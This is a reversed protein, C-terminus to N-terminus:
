GSVKLGLCTWGLNILSFMTHYDLLLQFTSVYFVCLILDDLCIVACVFILCSVGLLIPKLSFGRKPLQSSVTYHIVRREERDVKVSKSNCLTVTSAIEQAHGM